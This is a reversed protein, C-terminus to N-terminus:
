GYQYHCIGNVTQSRLRGQAELLDLHAATESIALMRNFEDLDSLSRERRTWTVRRATEYATAGDARPPM